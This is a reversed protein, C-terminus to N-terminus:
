AEVELKCSAEHSGLSFWQKSEAEPRGADHPYNKRHGGVNWCPKSGRWELITRKLCQVTVM